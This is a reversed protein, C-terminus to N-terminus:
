QRLSFQQLAFGDESNWVIEWGESDSWDGLVLRQRQQNDFLWDHVAPRHTHGHILISVDAEQMCRDVDAQTVDMIEASKMQHASQSESRAQRAFAMREELSKNLFDAQWAKDRLMERVKMYEIDATCLSDGHMLLVREDGFTVVSPDELLITGSERAFQDGLLFDRNGHMLWITIGRDSVAKLADKIASVFPHAFDDGMWVEFFDGLIYLEETDDPLDALYHIFGQAQAQRAPELHIDSILRISM